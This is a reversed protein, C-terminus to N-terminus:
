KIYGKVKDNFEQNFNKLEDSRFVGLHEDNIDDYVQYPYVNFLNNIMSIIGIRDKYVTGIIQVRDGIQHKHKRGM